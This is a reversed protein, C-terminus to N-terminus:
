RPVPSRGYGQRYHRHCTTCSAVMRENLEEIAAVDKKKAAQFADTFADRMLKADAMWQNRDRAHGPLMLLNASEAVALAQGQLTTWETDTKPTRTTIYFLADSSPYLVTVMLESMTGVPQPAVGAGSAPTSTTPSATSPTAPTSPTSPTQSQARVIGAALLAPLLVVLFRKTVFDLTRM